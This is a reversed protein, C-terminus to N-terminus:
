GPSRGGNGGVWAWGPEAFPCPPASTPDQGCATGLSRTGGVGECIAGPSSLLITGLPPPHWHLRRHRGTSGLAGQSSCLNRKCTNLQQRSTHHCLFFGGKYNVRYGLRINFDAKLRFTGTVGSATHWAGNEPSSRGIKRGSLSQKGRWPCRCPEMALTSAHGAAHM